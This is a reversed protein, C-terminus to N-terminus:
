RRLPSRMKRWGPRDIPSPSALPSALPTPSPTPITLTPIPTSDPSPSVAPTAAAEPIPSVIPTTTQPPTTTPSNSPSPSFGLSGSQSETQHAKLVPIAIWSIVVDKDQAQNISVSFGTASLNEVTAPVYSGQPTLTVIPAEAYPQDFTLTASTHGAKMLVTGAMDTDAFTVRKQFVVKDAFEVAKQFRVSNTFTVEGVFTWLNYSWQAVSPINGSALLTQADPATPSLPQTFLPSIDEGTKVDKIYILQEGSLREVLRLAKTVDANIALNGRQSYFGWALDESRGEPILSFNHPSLTTINGAEDMVRLEHSGSVDQAWLQIGDTIGTTPATSGAIALVRAANTGFTTTGIGVNGRLVTTAISSNGLVVSNSGVGIANFGIVIENAGGSVLAKTDAGLYLSTGSTANATSGDAIFRGAQIGQAANNSGTTNFSLASFGQVSNDSGTTNFYLANMGQASNRIGTTNSFLALLGQASNNNGTTNSYLAGVGQASNNIGTTNSRLADVGQASNDSGTTNFYLAGAGQASNYSGTTNGQLALNGQASNLSGTTNFYLASVGQASNAKGTTNFRLADAGQANNRSGTTNSYGAGTGIFTNYLGDEGVGSVNNVRGANTGLFLNNTNDSHLRLLETGGSSLLRILPNSNSQASNARVIFQTADTTGAVELKAGPTVTGIGVNGSSNINFIAASASNVINIYPSIQSGVGKMFFGATGANSSSGGNVNLLGTTGSPNAVSLKQHTTVNGYQDIILADSPSSTRIVLINSGSAGQVHLKGTPIAIGIGVRDTSADLYLLNQDTDGEFRQDVDAGSENVVNASQLTYKGDLATQQATSVPKGADTTNDVNGLGVDAKVLVLDTKLTALTNVEPVGAGATKRYILSASAMDAMKILTIAGNEIGSSGHSHMLPRGLLKDFVIPM